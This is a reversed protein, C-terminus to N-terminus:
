VGKYEECGTISTADVNTIQSELLLVRAELQQIKAMMELSVDAKKNEVPDVKKRETATSAEKRRSQEEAEQTNNQQTVLAEAHKANSQEVQAVTEAMQADKAALRQDIEARFEALKGAFDASINLMAAKTDM